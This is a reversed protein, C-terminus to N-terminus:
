PIYVKAAVIGSATRATLVYVGSAVPANLTSTAAARAVTRGALDTLALEDACFPITIVGESIYPRLARGANDVSIDEVGGYNNYIASMRSIHVTYDGKVSQPEFSFSTFRIPYTEAADADAIDSIDVRLTTEKDAEITGFDKKVSTKGNANMLVTFNKLAKGEPKVVFEVADPLSYIIIDKALVLRPARTSSVTFNVDIGNDQNVAAISADKSISTRTIKWTEPKITGDPDLPETNGKPCEVTITVSLSGSENTGTAVTTGDKHGTIVGNADVTAISPDEVTWTYAAPDVSVYKDAVLARLLINWQRYNDTLINDVAPAAQAKPDITVVIVADEVGPYTARLAHMGEGNVLIATGDEKVTGLDEGASLKIGQVNTDILQGYQNYGYVVPQYLAYKPLKAYPDAFRIKTIKTDKPAELRMFIGNGVARESGDRLTNLIGAHASWMTTSGGGDLDLADYCGLYRMLDAAEYYSVGSSGPVGADVACLVIYRRDQSYGCLSRGYQASPTNIWRIASTTVNNCNLIRVDGGCVDRVDPRIGGFAPLSLGIEIKVADGDKLNDIYPNTYGDGCSLVIGDAPIATSGGQRWDGSVVFDMPANISWRQGSVAPTLVLERGSANTGTTAGMYSNYIILQAGTRPFNCAYAGVTTKGDGSIVNYTLDTADIWAGGNFDMILANERSTIDIIDPAALKGGIVCSMNPYGLISNGLPHQGSFASTIFFDGNVGALYQYQDNTHRTGMSSVTEATPAKDTGIEVRPLLREAGEAKNDFKLIYAQFMREGSRFSLHSHTLGPGVYYHQITDVTFTTGQLDASDYAYANAALLAAAVITTIRRTM